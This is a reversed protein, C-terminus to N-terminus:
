ALQWGAIGLLAWGLLLCAGGIPTLLGVPLPGLQRLETLGLVYLSGCFLLTGAAFFAGAYVLIGPPKLALSQLQLLMLGVALLALAHWFQYRVGTEIIALSAEPLKGQLGHAAFAGIATASFGFLAAVPIYLVNM